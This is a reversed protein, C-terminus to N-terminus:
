SHLRWPIGLISRHTLAQLLRVCGHAAQVEGKLCFLSGRSSCLARSSAPSGWRAISSPRMYPPSPPCSLAASSSQTQRYSHLYRPVFPVRLLALHFSCIPLWGFSSTISLAELSSWSCEPWGSWWEMMSLMANSTAARCHALQLVNIARSQAHWPDWAPVGNRDIAKFLPQAPLVLSEPSCQFVLRHLRPDPLHLVM